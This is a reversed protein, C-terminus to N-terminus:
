EAVFYSRLQRIVQAARVQFQEDSPCSGAPTVTVEIPVLEASRTSKVQGFRMVLRVQQRDPTKGWGGLLTTAGLVMDVFDAKVNKLRAETDEVFGSLKYHIIDTAVRSMFQSTHVFPGPRHSLKGSEGPTETVTGRCTRNRGSNKAEYLAQDARHLFSAMTDNPLLEAVGFSATINLQVNGGMPTESIVRRLREARNYADDIGTEPCLVVFEEGGYRCITEGSYLEDSVLRALDILVRDGVAHGHTDNIPKFHDLDLFIVSYAPTTGDRGDLMRQLRSELEGRNGVGTLPDRRAAMQLERYQGPNAKAQSADRYIQAVGLIHGDTDNLPLTQVEIEKWEGTRRNELKFQGCSRERSQLVNAVPCRRDGLPKKDKDVLQLLRRSWSEGLMQRAPLGTLQSLGGNWGVFRLDSDIICFGDYHSELLYLFSFIQALEAAERITRADVPASASLLRSTQADDALFDAAEHDIWRSLASIINRDFEKGSHERLLRMTEDHSKGQRYSQENRLSDYADAVALIRAGQPIQSDVDDQPEDYANGRNHAHWVMEIIERDIRCAQLLDVGINHHLRVFEQEDPSLRAPKDLMHDPIGVKGLDHLLAAVELKRTPQDEWGLHQAIGVALLAVRRSHLLIGEDRFHIASLLRRLTWPSVVWDINSPAESLHRESDHALRMLSLLIRSSQMPHPPLASTAATTAPSIPADVAM